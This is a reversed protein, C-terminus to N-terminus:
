FFLSEAGKEIKASLSAWKTSSYVDPHTEPEIKSALVCLNVLKKATHVRGNLALKTPLTRFMPLLPVFRM